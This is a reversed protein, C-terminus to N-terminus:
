GTILLGNTECYRSPEDELSSVGGKVGREGGGGGWFLVCLCLEGAPTSDWGSAPRARVAGSFCAALRWRLRSRAGFMGLEETGRM